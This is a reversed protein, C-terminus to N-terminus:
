EWGDWGDRVRNWTFLRHTTCGCHGGHERSGNAQQEERCTRGHVVNFSYLFGGSDAVFVQQPSASQDYVPGTLKSASVSIPWSSGAEAPIGTGFIGTFKHLYGGNDGVYLTGTDYDLYPSSNTDSQGHAFALTTMCPAICGAYASNAVATLTVPLNVTGSGQAWKLLVLSAAGGSTPSQVFAVQTGDLSLIPSTVITGGTNYAWYVSPVAGYSSCTTAYLNDYAVISAQTASGAVGTNYVVYDPITANACNVATIDFSYKAPFMGAGVAGTMTTAAGGSFAGGNSWAFGSLNSTARYSNGGTGPARATITVVAGNSTAYVGSATQLTANLNIAAAISAALQTPTLGSYAFTTGTTGTSGGSLATGSWSFNSLGDALTISNGGTGATSATVTVVAGSSTATVGVTGGNRAIAAALYTANDSLNNDCRFYTGTNTGDSGATHSFATFNTTGGDSFTFGASGYTAATLSITRSNRTATVVPNPTTGCEWTSYSGGGGGNTIAEYLSTAVTTTSDGFGGSYSRINCANTGPTSVSSANVFTYVVSGITVSSGGAPRSSSSLTITATEQTSLSATLVESGGITVTQGVTPNGSFTGTASAATPAGANLTVGDVILSSSGNANNTTVTGTLTAAGGSM